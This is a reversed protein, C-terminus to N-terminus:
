LFIEREHWDEELLQPRGHPVVNMQKMVYM